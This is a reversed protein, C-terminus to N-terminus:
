PTPFPCLFRNINSDLRKSFPLPPFFTDDMDGGNHTNQMHTQDIAKIRCNDDGSGGDGSGDDDWSRLASQQLENSREREAELYYYYFFLL